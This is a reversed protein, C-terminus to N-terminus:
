KLPCSESKIELRGYDDDFRVIDDEGLYEGSQVEIIVLDILGRNAVRHKHGAKIYTSQNTDVFFTEGNCTVEAMGSVVIWHENRHHHLQLSISTKPKIELRKIKFRPGTELVTYSGWPRYDTRHQRYAEHGETKLHEYIHKVDQTRSKDAVLLADPTDVILLNELGLVAVLRGESHIDCDKTDKLITNDPDSLHNACEDCQDLASLVKWSGIDSWGIDCPVVSVLDSKEMLAYDISISPVEAFTASDLELADYEFGASGSAALCREMSVLIEPAHRSMEKLFTQATFCFMGSNWLFKGCAVYEAAKEVDPKEVFRLVRNGDAEIYGYGTEPGDPKIGFTVLRGQAALERAQAVAADFAQFDAILHDAALILIVAEGGHRQNVKLAAATAAAATNRGFPELIYSTPVAGGGKAAQASKFLLTRNTITLIESSNPLRGARIFTKELLSQGDPLRLFPKPHSERSVPWLRSGAGGCLIVSIM